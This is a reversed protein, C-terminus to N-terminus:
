LNNQNEYLDDYEKMDFITKSYIHEVPDKNYHNQKLKEWNM